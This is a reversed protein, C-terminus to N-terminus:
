TEKSLSLKTNVIFVVAFTDVGVHDLLVVSCSLRPNVSVCILSTGAMWRLLIVVVKNSLNNFVLVGVNSV